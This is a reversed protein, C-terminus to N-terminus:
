CLDKEREVTYIPSWHSIPGILYPFNVRRRLFCPSVLIRCWPILLWRPSCTVTRTAPDRFLHRECFLLKTEAKRSAMSRRKMDNFQFGLLLLFRFKWWDCTECAVASSAWNTSVCRWWNRKYQRDDYHSTISFIKKHFIFRLTAFFTLRIFHPAKTVDSLGRSSIIFFLLTLSEICWM